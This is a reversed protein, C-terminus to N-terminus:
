LMLAGGMHLTGTVNPPPLVMSFTPAEKKTIGKELCVDPNFFGSEEWRKYIREETAGPDYPKDLKEKMLNIKGCFALVSNKNVTEHLSSLIIYIRKIFFSVLSSPSFTM